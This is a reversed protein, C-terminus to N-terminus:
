STALAARYETGHKAARAAYFDTLESDNWIVALLDFIEEKTKGEFLSRVKWYPLKACYDVFKVHAVVWNCVKDSNLTGTHLRVELTKHENYASVNLWQYREQSDTWDAFDRVSRLEDVDWELDGCYSNSRRSRAVFSQWVRATLAYAACVSKLEDDTLDQCGVHLHYGCKSDVDWHRAHACFDAIADLGRDGRLVRSVFEKGNISGDDKSDFHTEGDLGMYGDCEATELEVGFTRLSGTKRCTDDPLFRFSAASIDGDYDERPACSECYCGYDACVADDRNIEDGCNDCTTYVDWYCDDCYNRRGDNRVDDTSVECHCSDCRCYRSDYCSECYPGSGDESSCSDDVATVDGCVDCECWDRSFCDDCLNDNEPTERLSAPRNLEGCGDCEVPDPETPVVAPLNFGPITLQLECTQCM